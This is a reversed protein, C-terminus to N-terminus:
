QRKINAHLSKFKANKSLGIKVGLPSHSTGSSQSSSLLAPINVTRAQGSSPSNVTSKPRSSPKLTRSPASKIGVAVATNKCGSKTITTSSKTALSSTPDAKVSHKLTTNVNANTNAKVTPASKKIQRVKPKGVRKEPTFEEESSLRFEEDSSM